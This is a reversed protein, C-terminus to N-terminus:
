WLGARRVSSYYRWVGRERRTLRDRDLAVSTPEASDGARPM